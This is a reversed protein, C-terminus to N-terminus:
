QQHCDPVSFMILMNLDFSSSLPPSYLV